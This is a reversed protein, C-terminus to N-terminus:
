RLASFGIEPGSHLLGAEATARQVPIQFSLPGQHVAARNRAPPVVPRLTRCMYLHNFRAADLPQHLPLLQSSARLLFIARALLTPPCVTLQKNGFASYAGDVSETRFLNRM